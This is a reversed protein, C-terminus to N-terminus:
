KPLGLLLWVFKLCWSPQKVLSCSPRGECVRKITAWYLMDHMEGVGCSFLNKPLPRVHLWQDTHRSVQLLTGGINAQLCAVGLGVAGFVVATFSWFPVHWVMARVHQVEWIVSWNLSVSVSLCVSLCLFFSIALSNRSVTAPLIFDRLLRHEWDASLWSPTVWIVNM